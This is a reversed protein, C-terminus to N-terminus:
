FQGYEQIYARIYPSLRNLQRSYFSHVTQGNSIGFQDAIHQLPLGERKLRYIAQFTAQPFGEIHKQFLGQSDEAICADVQESLSPPLDPAPPDAQYSELEDLSRIPLKPNGLVIPRADAVCKSFLFTVWRLAGQSRGPQFRGVDRCVRFWFLSLAETHIQEYRDPYTQRGVRLRRFWPSKQLVKALCELAQRHAPTRTPHAQVRRILAELLYNLDDDSLHNIQRILDSLLHNLEDENM